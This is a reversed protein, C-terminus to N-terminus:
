NTSKRKRIVKIRDNKRFLESQTDNFLIYYNGHKLATIDIEKGADYMVETNKEDTIVYSCSRSLVLTNGKREFTIPEPYFVHEIEESYLTGNKSTYKIRFKNTGEEYVPFYTYESRSYDGNSKRLNVVEWDGLDFIEVEYSAEDGEGRARWVLSSDTVVIKEFSFVSHYRISEPNLLIPVCTSDSYVIHISVPSFKNVEEFDLLLASVEYNINVRKRNITIERICYGKTELLYPNQIFLPKGQYVGTYFIENQIDQAILNNVVFLFFLVM